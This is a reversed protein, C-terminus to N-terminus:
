FNQDGMFCIIMFALVTKALNSEDNVAKGFLQGGHYTLMPKVYVEDILLICQKQGNNLKSFISCIFANDDINSVKSTIHTLTAISPLQFDNRLQNYLSRSLAFYEFARIIFEPSYKQELINSSNMSSMCEVQQLLITKKESKEFSTLYRLAEHVQSWCKFKHICNKVLSTITCRVGAHYAEYSLDNFVILYFKNIGSKNEHEKSQICCRNLCTYYFISDNLRGQSLSNCFIEFSDINDLEVFKSLEDEKVSRVSSEAKMTRRKAPPPTPVLSKLLLEFVSPPDRPRERGKVKIVQFNSPFHKACVVTM